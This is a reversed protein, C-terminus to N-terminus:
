LPTVKGHKRWCRAGFAMGGTVILALTSPEPVATTSFTIDDLEMWNLGQIISTFDIQGTQGAYPTIDAGYVNYPQGSPSEGSSLVVPSLSNGAFSVSLSGGSQFSWAKFQLSQADAPITGSQWLSTNVLLGETVPSGGSQLFVTYNGDIIGPNIANWTPGFIDISAQGLSYDNAWVQTVPVGGISGSWGPLANAIPIENFQGSPNSLNASEFNLNQFTSQAQASVAVGIWVM